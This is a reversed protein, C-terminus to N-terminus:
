AVQYTGWLGTDFRELVTSGFTWRGPNDAMFAVRLTRGEPIQMTDLWYPEWGDDLPHLLRFVHGHLHVPQVFGTRNTLGMVVPQGRRATFLPPAAASGAQGNITWIRAPDGSYAPQGDPGKVAGGAIVLEPRLANQLRIEPPLVSNAPLAVVDPREPAAGATTTFEVLPLGQGILAVITAAAGTERPLDFFLDYRTGPAFPLNSRLPEFTDTPQGDVAAVYVKLGDFRLRLIRANCANAIRLRVRSGAPLAIKRPALDGDVALRNGLRGALIADERGGFPALAGSPELRWDRVLLAYEADIAPPTREEVVLLGSLGRGALESSGGVVLPRILFTGPDPPTLRYEFDGGPPVPPQSVGGVGDQAAPGRVGHWHLSLPKGTRNRLKLSLEDGHRVKLVPPALSGNFALLEAPGLDPGLRQSLPAADLITPSTQARTPLPVLTAALGALASRRTTSIDMVADYGLAADNAM